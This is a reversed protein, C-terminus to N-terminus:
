LIDFYISCYDFISSVAGPYVVVEFLPFKKLDLLPQKLTKVYEEMHDLANQLDGSEELSIAKQFTGEDAAYGWWKAYTRMQIANLKLVRYQDSIDPYIPLVKGCSEAPISVGVESFFQWITPCVDVTDIWTDQM